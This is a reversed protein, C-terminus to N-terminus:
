LVTIVWKARGIFKDNGTSKGKFKPEFKRIQTGGADEIAYEVTATQETTANLVLSVRAIYRGTSPLSVRKVRNVIADHKLQEDTGNPKTVAGSANVDNSTTVVKVALKSGKPVDRTRAEELKLPM